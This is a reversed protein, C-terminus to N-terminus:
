LIRYRDLDSPPPPYRPNLQEFHHLVIASVALNRFWKKDAPIIYWPAWRTTCRSLADEYAAVYASWLEREALDSPNFKWSKSPDALRARLRERQEEQSIHLFFKIVVTGSDTLLREFANIHAYRRSWVPRPVLQRVRAILVDEYHSRNFVALEGRAPVAAHIRWLFDRALEPATPTKFSTVRCGQPNLPGFVHRITGDKGSADMGQLVVLVACQNEAYLRHQLEALRETNSTLQKLARAKSWGAVDAPDYDALRVRTAPPIRFRDAFNM